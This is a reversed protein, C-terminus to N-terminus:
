FLRALEDVEFQPWDAPAGNRFAAIGQGPDTVEGICAVAIGADRIAQVLEDADEPRCVILLTGSGILGLPEVDM